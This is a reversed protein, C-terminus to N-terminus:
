KANGGAIFSLKQEEVDESPTTLTRLKRWENLQRGGTKCYNICVECFM